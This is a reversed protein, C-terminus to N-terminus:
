QDGLPAIHGGGVRRETTGLFAAIGIGREIEWREEGSSRILPM